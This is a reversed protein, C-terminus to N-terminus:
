YIFFNESDTSYNYYSCSYVYQVYIGLLYNTEYRLYPLTMIKLFSPNKIVNNHWDSMDIKGDQDADDELLTQGCVDIARYYAMTIYSEMRVVM